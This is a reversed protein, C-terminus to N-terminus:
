LPLREKCTGFADAGGKRSGTTAHINPGSCYYPTLITPTIAYFGLLRPYRVFARRFPRQYNRETDM